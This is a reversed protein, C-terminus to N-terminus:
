KEVAVHFVVKQEGVQVSVLYVGSAINSPLVVPMNLESSPTLTAGSFVTQGLMNVVSVRIPDSVISSLQGTIAFRGNNPNPSLVLKNGDNMTQEIGTTINVSFGASTTTRPSACLLSSTVMCTVIQGNSLSSTTYTMNTAGTIPVGSVFWQYTPSPGANPAVAIFTLPVGTPAGTASASVSVTNVTPSQVRMTFPASTAVTSTVCPYNSTMRCIIIDGNLPWTLYMPGTAVNIGNETWLYEPASGGWMPVASYTVMDGTCVTDNPSAMISVSPTVTPNVVMTIASTATAPIACLESSTLQVSVMDGNAPIYSYTNTTGAVPSGNVFWQYAPTAGGNVPAATFTVPTTTACITLGGSSTISVSPTVIAAASVTITVPSSTATCGFSSTVIVQYSGATPTVYTGTTAGAINVGALQWQYTHGSTPSATLTASVGTCIAVTGSPSISAAPIPNITVIRVANSICGLGNTYSYSISATGASISSVLGAANVTAIAPNGTSWAGGPMANALTTTFGTCVSATGTIAPLSTPANVTMTYLANASGCGNTVTYTITVTGASVGTVVGSASVTATAASSSSWVGGISASSLSTTQGICVASSGTIPAAYASDLTVTIPLSTSDCLSQNVIVTYNGGTTATYSTSTAGVINVGNRQWQYGLGAGTPSANMLVDSGVCFTTPGTPTISAAPINCLPGDVLMYRGFGTFTGRFGVYNGAMILTPTVLVSNTSNLTADSGSITKLLMFSSPPLGALEATTMYMTVEYTTINGNITPTISIEKLSRNIPSFTAATVGNGQQSVSATVCGLNNDMGQIGAIVQTDAPSYFYVEDGTKVNIVRTSAATTEIASPAVIQKFRIIPRVVSRNGTSFGLSCGTGTGTNTTNYDGIIFEGQQVGSVVDNAGFTAANMGYCFQVVVNSVGDWTFTGTNFNISDMGVYTTFNGTYVQTLGATVFAAYLDPVATNALSVTFGVFPATSGKSIVNLSLQSIPVRPVVGAAQLESAYLLYQMRSRRQRGAFPSTFDCPVPTGVNTTPYVVRGTYPISDNNDIFVTLSDNFPSVVAGSGMPTVTFALDLRKDDNVDGDDFITMTVFRTSTDGVPFTVSSASLTYDIGAVATSSGVVVLNAVPSGGAIVPGNPKLGINITKTAPCAVGPVVENVRITTRTFAIQPACPVYNPGVGVAYWASTVSQAEPSCPGFLTNAVNISATRCDMYTATTSLVLETEYLITASNTWGLANVIYSNGLDNTGTGGNVLLYYWYNMLGSNRHVGCYDNGGSPTCGVVNFWNTGGYTDPQGQLLPANMSRLPETGIEEGIDWAAKPMADSEYPNAWHEITAAWCDSFAENLAGAESEYVLDCTAQCVGHGVEHATVDLSTLPSFGGAAIGSGDGYTMSVGNWFANNYNTSYHVYQFLTSNLGDWSLRGHQSQFYDYVVEGGWHADLAVNDIPASPWTNTVSTFQSATGYNTGNNMNRTYVGNGRTSDYLRYTGGVFSTQFPVIGSYRSAGSASTHKILQNVFLVHGDTADIYVDQRSMPEDAYIDFSYALHLKRDNTGSRKDEVWVLKGKPLYTTDNKNYESKIHAEEIPNQWKYKTAGVFALAKSFATSENLLPSSSLDSTPKFFNGTIFSIKEDKATVTYGGHAVKLGKYYQVYRRVTTNSKTKTENKFALQLKDGSVIGLYNNFLEQEQGLKWSASPGFSMSKLSNDISNREESLVVQETNRQQAYVAETSILASLSFAVVAIRNTFSMM